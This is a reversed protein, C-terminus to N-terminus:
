RRAAALVAYVHALERYQVVLNWNTGLGKAIETRSLAIQEESLLIYDALTRQTPGRNPTTVGGM